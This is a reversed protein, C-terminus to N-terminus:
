GHQDPEDRLDAGLRARRAEKRDRRPRRGREARHRLSGSREDHGGRRAEEDERCATIPARQQTELDQRAEADRREEDPGPVERDPRPMALAEDILEHQVVHEPSCELVQMVRIGAVVDAEGVEHLLEAIRRKRPRADREGREQATM